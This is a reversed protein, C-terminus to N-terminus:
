GNALPKLALGQGGFRVGRHMSHRLRATVVRADLLQLPTYFDTRGYRAPDAQECRGHQHGEKGLTGSATM